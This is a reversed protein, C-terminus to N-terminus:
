IAARKANIDRLRATATEHHQHNLEIGLWDRGLTKAAVLTSGSGCFPDLILDGPKSFTRILPTLAEVPKQTPHLRNGTYPFDIM